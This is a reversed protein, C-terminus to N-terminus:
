DKTKKYMGTKSQIALRERLDEIEFRSDMATVAVMVRLSVRLEWLDWDRIELRLDM